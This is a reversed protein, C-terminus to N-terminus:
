SICTRCFPDGSTPYGCAVCTTGVLTEFGPIIGARTPLPFIEENTAEAPCSQGFRHHHAPSPGSCAVCKSDVTLGGADVLTPATVPGDILHEAVWLESECTKMKRSEHAKDPWGTAGERQLNQDELSPSPKQDKARPKSPLKWYWQGVASGSQKYKEVGLHKGATRLQSESIGEAKARKFIELSAVSGGKLEERLFRVADSDTGSEADPVFSMALDIGVSSQGHWEIPCDLSRSWTLPKPRIWLNSKVVGLIMRRADTDNDSSLSPAGSSNPEPTTMWALRAIAGFATSGLLQQLPRRSTGTPKGVHMIALCACGTRDLLKLLPHLADRVDGEANRDARPMFTAIPDLIMLGIGNARIVAEITPLDKALSVPRTRAGDLETPELIEELVFCNTLDAGHDLLRPLVTDSAGHESPLILVGTPESTAGDPMQRGASLRAAIALSLTSKGDGPHGGLIALKGGALWGKWLWDVGKFEINDFCRLVPTPEATTGKGNLLADIGDALQTIDSAHTM